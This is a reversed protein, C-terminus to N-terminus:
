RSERRQRRRSDKAQEEDELRPLGAAQSPVGGSVGGAPRHRCSYMHLTCVIMNEVATYNYTLNANYVICM